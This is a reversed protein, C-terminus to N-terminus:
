ATVNRYGSEKRIKAVTKLMATAERESLLPKVNLIASWAKSPKTKHENVMEKLLVGMKLKERRAISRILKWTEDDVNKITRVRMFLLVTNSKYLRKAGSFTTFM